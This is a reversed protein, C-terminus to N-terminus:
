RLNAHLKLLDEPTASEIKELIQRTREDTEAIQRKEKDTLALLNLVMLEDIELGDFFNDFSKEAIEPFDYLIIPSALISNQKCKDGILVPFAGINHLSKTYEAFEKPPELQSLFKDNEIGLITHTSVFSFSLIEERSLKQPNLIQSLNQFIFRIKFLNETIKKSSIKIKGFLADEKYEITKSKTLSFKGEIIKENATQWESDATLKLFQTKFTIESDKEAIVLIEIQQFYHENIQKEVWIKPSLVGFNFRKQNKLSNKRYPFLAYGEYLLANCIREIDSDIKFKSNKVKLKSKTDM